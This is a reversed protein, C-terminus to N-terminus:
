MINERLMYGVVSGNEVLFSLTILVSDKLSKTMKIKERNSFIFKKMVNEIYYITNTELKQNVYNENRNLISSIWFVGDDLFTSGINNLLKSISYLVSPYHGIADSIDKFFMRSDDSLTDWKTTTEKWSTQAFLYSMILKDAYRDPKGVQSTQVVKDKFLGWIFWFNEKSHLNDEAIILSTLLESMCESTDFDDLFPKLHTEIEDKDLSM